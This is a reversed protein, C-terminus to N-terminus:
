DGAARRPAPASAGGLRVWRLSLSNTLVLTSSLAMAVAGAIPLYAYVGTGLWPILAGAAIPLLVANYGLAWTLNGRVKGVTRRAIRLALPVGRFEPGTLLIRGAEKAVDTGSGIAIGVDAAELAAADNIGDGVFAVVRGSRQFGRVLELKEEPTMRAHYSSIGVERAVRRAAAEQDGTAMVVEIGDRRLEAVGEAAGSAVPDSFGLVGVPRGERLLVSWSRGEREMAEPTGGLEARLTSPIDDGRQLSVEGGRERGVPGRGPVTRLESLVIPVVGESRAVDRVAQGFPHESGAELGAALALLGTRDAGVGPIVDTLAPTGRTLTGTKDTLVLDVRAANEIADHGKYLIGDRAARGTGVIIAAPTALGFACPCATIVVSVFLLLAVTAGVGGFLFWLTASVVSLALVFPVFGAAIRDALRQIPVRSTEAEALLEGVHALFTDEGVRTAEVELVGPGNVAGAVVSDGPGKEVPMSEGTLLSEDVRSHGTVVRGDAPFREGPRVRLLDKPHVEAVPRSSEAGGVVVHASAPVLAALERVAGSARERTLHELYNGARILTLILSSADFYYAAPLRGPLLLAALSYGFAATTGVAILVDMNGMRARVADLTGQYYPYGLYVQVVAALGAAAPVYEPPHWAYTLLLIVGSVLIGVALQRRLRLLERGPETFAAVCASCCFYYTRNDRRVKLTSTREDVFMGCVPDTAM